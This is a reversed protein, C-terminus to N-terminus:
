SPRRLVRAVMCSRRGLAYRASNLANSCLNGTIALAVRPERRQLANIVDHFSVTRLFYM